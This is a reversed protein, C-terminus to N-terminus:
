LKVLFNISNAFALRGKDTLHIGDRKFLDRDVDGNATTFDAVHSVHGFRTRNPGIKGSRAVDFNVQNIGQLLHDGIKPLVSSFAIKSEPALERLSELCDTIRSSCTDRAFKPILNSGVHVIVRKYRHTATLQRFKKVVDRPRAGPLCTISTDGGPNLISADLDRLLSDGILLLDQEIKPTIDTDVPETEPLLTDTSPVAERESVVNQPPIAISDIKSSLECIVQDKSALEEAFTKKTNRLESRINRLEDDKSKMAHELKEIRIILDNQLSSKSM